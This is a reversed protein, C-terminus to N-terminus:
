ENNERKLRNERCMTIIMDLIYLVVGFCVLIDAINCVFGFISFKIFDRVYSFCIRDVLNGVAGALIFSFATVYLGNQNKQKLDLIVFVVVFAVSVLSLLLTSGAFSGFAAGDNELYTFTIFGMFVSYSEEGSLFYDAFYSKSILDIALMVAIIILKIIIKKDSIFQKFKM